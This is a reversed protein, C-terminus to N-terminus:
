RQIMKSEIYGSYLLDMDVFIIPNKVSNILKNLFEIKHFSNLCLVLSPVNKKFENQINELNDDLIIEPNKDLV